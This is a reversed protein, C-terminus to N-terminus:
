ISEIFTVVAKREEKSLKRFKEISQRADSNKAGHWMIAEIVTRARCDHLRDSAGTAKM